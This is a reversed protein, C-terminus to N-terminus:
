YTNYLKLQGGSNKKLESLRKERALLAMQENINANDETRQRNQLSFDVGREKNDANEEISPRRAPDILGDMFNATEAINASTKIIINLLKGLMRYNTAIDGSDSYYMSGNFPGQYQGELDIAADLDKKFLNGATSGTYEGGFAKDLIEKMKLAHYTLQFSWKDPKKNASVALNEEDDPSPTVEQDNGDQDDGDQTFLEKKKYQLIALSALILLIIYKWYIKVINVFKKLITNM